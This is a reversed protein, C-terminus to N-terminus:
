GTESTQQLSIRKSTQRNRAHPKKKRKKVTERIQANREEGGKRETAAKTRTNNFSTGITKQGTENDGSM